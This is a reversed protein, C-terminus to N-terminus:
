KKMHTMTECRVGDGCEFYTQHDTFYVTRRALAHEQFVWGRENLSSRQVHHEFDDIAECVYLPASSAKSQLSVTIRQERPHLFGAYHGPSRAAALVCYAGSYVDGMRTAEEKFDGNDGQIICLSDIWLYPCNLARTVLVADRFTQPLEAVPIGNVHSKLNEPLTLFKKSQRSGWQHSLAVWRSDNSKMSSSECLKVTEDGPRGVDVVRKPMIRPPTSKNCGVKPACSPHNGDCHELWERIIQFYTESQTNTLWPYGLQIDDGLQGGTKDKDIIFGRILEEWLM